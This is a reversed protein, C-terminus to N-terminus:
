SYESLNFKDEILKIIENIKIKDNLDYKSKISEILQYGKNYKILDFHKKILNLLENYDNKEKSQLCKKCYIKYCFGGEHNSFIYPIETKFNTAIPNFLNSYLCITKVKSCAIGNSSGGHNLISYKAYSAFCMAERFTFKNYFVTVNDLKNFEIEQFSEPIIQVCEIKDKLYNVVKQINSKLYSRSDVKGQYNILIFDNKPLLKKIKKYEKKTFVIQGHLEYKDLKLREAIKSVFHKDDDIYFNEYYSKLNKKKWYYNSMIKIAIINEYLEDDTVYPNNKFIEDCQPVETYKKFNIRHMWTCYIIFKFPKNIDKLKYNIIGIDYHDKYKISNLYEKKKQINEISEIKKHLDRIIATWIIYDGYGM